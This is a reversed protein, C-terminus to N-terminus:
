GIGRLQIPPYGGFQAARVARESHAPHAVAGRLNRLGVLLTHASDADPFRRTRRVAGRRKSVEADIADKASGLGMVLDLSEDRLPQSRQEGVIGPPVGLQHVCQSLVEVTPTVVV